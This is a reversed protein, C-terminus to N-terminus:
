NILWLGFLTMVLQSLRLGVVFDMTIREWKQTTIPMRQFERDLRQYECNVQQYLFCKAMFESIDRKMICWQYYQSLDHYMKAEGPHISYYSHAEELILRILDGLEPM